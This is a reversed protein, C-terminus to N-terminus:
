HNLDGPSMMHGDTNEDVRETIHLDAAVSSLM